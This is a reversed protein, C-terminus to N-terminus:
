CADTKITVRVQRKLTKIDNKLADMPRTLCGLLFDGHIVHLVFFPSPFDSAEKTHSLLAKGGCSMTIKKGPDSPNGFIPDVVHM